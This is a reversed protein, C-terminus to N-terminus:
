PSSRCTPPVMADITAAVGHSRTPCSSGDCRALVSRRDSARPMVNGGYPALASGARRPCASSRIPVFESSVLSGSRSLCPRASRRARAGSTPCMDIPSRMAAPSRARAAPPAGDYVNEFTTTDRSVRSSSSRSRCDRRSTSIPPQALSSASASGSGTRRHRCRLHDHWRAAMRRSSSRAVVHGVTVFDPAPVRRDAGPRFLAVKRDDGEGTSSTSVHRDESLTIHIIRRENAPMPELTVPESTRRAQDAMRRALTILPQERRRRYGEIDVTFLEQKGLQRAVMLNLLFQLSDLTEGRRGILIGLDDGEVDLVAKAMGLGDGPTEADRISVDAEVGM